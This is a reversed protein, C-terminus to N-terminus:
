GTERRLSRILGVPPVRCAEKGEGRHRSRRCTSPVSTLYVIWRGRQAAVDAANAPQGVIIVARMVSSGTCRSRSAPQLSAWNGLGDVDRRQGAEEVASSICRELGAPPQEYFVEVDAPHPQRGGALGGVRATNVLTM